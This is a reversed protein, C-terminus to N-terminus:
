IVPTLVKSDTTYKDDSIKGTKGCNFENKLLKLTINSVLFFYKRSIKLQANLRSAIVSLLNVKESRLAFRRSIVFSSLFDIFFNNKV